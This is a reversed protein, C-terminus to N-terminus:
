HRHAGIRIELLCQIGGSCDQHTPVPVLLQFDHTHLEQQTRWPRRHNESRIDAPYSLFNHVFKVSM